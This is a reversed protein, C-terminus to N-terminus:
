YLHIRVMESLNINNKKENSNGLEFVYIITASTFPFVSLPSKDSFFVWM